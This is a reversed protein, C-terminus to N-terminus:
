NSALILAYAAVGGFGFLMTTQIWSVLRQGGKGGVSGGFSGAVYGIIECQRERRDRETIIQKHLRQSKEQLKQDALAIRRSRTESM